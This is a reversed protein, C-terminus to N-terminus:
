PRLVRVYIPQGSSIFSARLTDPAAGGDKFTYRGSAQGIGTSPPTNVSLTKDTITYSGKGFLTDATTAGTPIIFDITVSDTTFVFTGQAGQVWVGSQNLSDLTWTGSIDPGKGPGGSDSCAVSLGTLMGTAALLFVIQRIRM